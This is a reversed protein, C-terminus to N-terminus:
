RIEIGYNDMKYKLTQRSIKLLKAAENLTESSE